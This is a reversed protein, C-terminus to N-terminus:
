PKSAEYLLWIPLGSQTPQDNSDTPDTGAEIEENDGYGDGDSDVTENPDNPFADLNDNTGDGDSDRESPGCGAANIDGGEATPTGDCQDAHDGMGDNDTDTTEDPDTPFADIEDLFGDNDDDPDYINKQGDLDHDLEYQLAQETTLVDTVANLASKAFFVQISGSNWKADQAYTDHYWANLVGDFGYHFFALDSLGDGNYDAIDSETKYFLTGEDLFIDGTGLPNDPLLAPDVKRFQGHGDNIFLAPKPEQGTLMVLDDLNDGNLDTFRTKFVGSRFINDPILDTEVPVLKGELVRFAVYIHAPPSLIHGLQSAVGYRTDYVETPKLPEHKRHEPMAAGLAHAVIVPPEDPFMKVAYFDEFAMGFTAQDRWYFGTLEAVNGDCEFCYANYTFYKDSAEWDDLFEFGNSSAKYLSIGRGNKDALLYSDAGIDLLAAYGNLQDFNPKTVWFETNNSWTQGDENLTFTFKGSYSQIFLDKAGQPNPLFVSSFAPMPDGLKAVSYTGDTNSMLISQQTRWTFLQDENIVGEADIPRTDDRSGYYSIEPLGDGNLDDTTFYGYGGLLGSPGGASVDIADSNFYFQTVDVVSNAPTLELAMWAQGIYEDHVNNQWWGPEYTRTYCNILSLWEPTGDVDLDVPLLQTRVSFPCSALERAGEINALLVDAETGYAAGEAELCTTSLAVLTAAFYASVRGDTPM